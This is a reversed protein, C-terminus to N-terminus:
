YNFVLRIQFFDYPNQTTEEEKEASTSGKDEVLKVKVTFKTIEYNNSIRCLTLTLTDGVSSSDIKDLLVDPTTLEKGDVAIIMDYKRADTNALGSNKGIEMIILSGPASRKQVIMSYQQSASVESYSIGLMPRNPVYGYKIINDIISKADSIPIAFGMGEYETDAIKLSNIGIVQGYVNVLAGGSNGPNIAADHQICKM